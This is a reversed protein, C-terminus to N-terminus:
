EGAGPFTAIFDHCGAGANRQRKAARADTPAKLTGPSVWKGHLYSWTTDAPAAGDPRVHGSGVPGAFHTITAEENAKRKAATVLGAKLKQKYAEEREEDAANIVGFVIVDYPEEYAARRHCRKNTRCMCAPFSPVFVVKGGCREGDTVVQCGGADDLAKQVRASTENPKDNEDM